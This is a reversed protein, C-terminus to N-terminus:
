GSSNSENKVVQKIRYRLKDRAILVYHNCGMCKLGIDAGTRVVQWTDSGCPHRKKLKVLNGIELLAYPM